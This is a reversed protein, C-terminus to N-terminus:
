ICLHQKTIGLRNCVDNSLNVNTRWSSTKTKSIVNKVDRSFQPRIENDPVVILTCNDKGRGKNNSWYVFLQLGNKLPTIKSLEM